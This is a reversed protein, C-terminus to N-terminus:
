RKMVSTESLQVNGESYNVLRVQQIDKLASDRQKALQYLHKEGEESNLGVSM